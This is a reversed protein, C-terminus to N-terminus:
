LSRRGQLARHLTLEDVHDLGGGAPMGQALKTLAISESRLLDALYNATAEGEVDSGLALIVESAPLQQVRRLLSDIRLDEPTVNDLPSLKGGLVHYLGNFARSRELRLVDSAQEVVCLLHQDRKHDTCLGCAEGRESYFGCDTCAEVTEEMARLAEALQGTVRREGRLLWLAIREASRPGVGPLSKFQFILRQIPGPYDLAPM